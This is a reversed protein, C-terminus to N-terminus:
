TDIYKFLFPFIFAIFIYNLICGVSLLYKM